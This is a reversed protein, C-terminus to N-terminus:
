RLAKFSEVGSWAGEALPLAFRNEWSFFGIWGQRRPDLGNAV